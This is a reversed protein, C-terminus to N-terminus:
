DEKKPARRLEGVGGLHGLKANVQTPVLQMRTTSDEHWTYDNDRRWRTVEERSVGLQRATEQDAQMFNERRNTSMGSVEVEMAAYPSFDPRADSYAVGQDRTARQVRSDSSYFTSEGREGSWWGRTAPTQNLREKYSSFLQSSGASLDSRADAREAIRSVQQEAGRTAVAPVDSQAVGRAAGDGYRIVPQAGDVMADIAQAAPLALPATLPPTNAGGLSALSYGVDDATAAVRPANRMLAVNLGTRGGQLLGAALPAATGGTQVVLAAGAAATLNTELAYATSATAVAAPNQQEEPSGFWAARVYEIAYTGGTAIAAACPIIFPGVCRGDPDIYVGPNAYGYLYKNLSVPSTTDGDWPDVSLFSGRGAGYYRAKAYFRRGDSAEATAPSNESAAEPTVHAPAPHADEAHTAFGRHASEPQLPRAYGHAGTSACALLLAAALNLLRNLM